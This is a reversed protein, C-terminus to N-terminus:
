FDKLKDILKHESTKIVYEKSTFLSKGLDEAFTSPSIEFNKLGSQALIAKRNESASALVIRYKSLEDIKDLLM